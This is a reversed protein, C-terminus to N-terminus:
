EKKKKLIQELSLDKLHNGVQLNQNKLELDITQPAVTTEKCITPKNPKNTKLKTRWKEKSRRLDGM